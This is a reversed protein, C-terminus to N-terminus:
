TTLAPGLIIDNRRIHQEVGTAHDLMVTM